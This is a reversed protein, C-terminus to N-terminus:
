ATASIPDAAVDDWLGKFALKPMDPHRLNHHPAGILRGEPFPMEMDTSYVTCSSGDTYTLRTEIPPISPSDMDPLAM